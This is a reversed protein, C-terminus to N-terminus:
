ECERVACLLYRGSEDPDHITDIEFVRSNSGTVSCFRMDKSLGDRRRLIIWHSIDMTENRAQHVLVGKVPILRTWVDFQHQWSTTTGGAGDSVTVPAELSLRVSFSGAQLFESGIL